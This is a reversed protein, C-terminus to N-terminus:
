DAELQTRREEAARVQADLKDAMELLLDRGSQRALKAAIFLEYLHSALLMNLEAEVDMLRRQIGAVDRARASLAHVEPAPTGEQWQALIASLAMTDSNRYARNAESMLETRRARDAEDAARDPHIKQALQRFLRKLDASPAFPKEIADFKAFHRQENASREARAQANEAKSRAPADQPAREALLCAIRAEIRDLETLRLGVLQAYRRAFEALEAQATALELELESLQQALVKQEALLRAEADDPALARSTSFGEARGSLLLCDRGRALLSPVSAAMREPWVLVLLDRQTGQTGQAAEAQALPLLCAPFLNEVDPAHSDNGSCWALAAEWSPGYKELRARQEEWVEACSSEGGRALRSKLLSLTARLAIRSAFGPQPLVLCLPRLALDLANSLPPLLEDDPVVILVTQRAMLSAAVVEALAGM